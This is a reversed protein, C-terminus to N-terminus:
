ASASFQRPLFPANALKNRNPEHLMTVTMFDIKKNGELHERFWFHTGTLRFRRLMQLFGFGRGLSERAGGPPPRSQQVQPAAPVQAGEGASCQLRSFLSPAAPPCPRSCPGSGRRPCPGTQIVGLPRVTEDSHKPLGHKLPCGSSNSYSLCYIHISGM